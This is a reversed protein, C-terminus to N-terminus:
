KKIETNKWCSINLIISEALSESANWVYQPDEEDLFDEIWWRPEFANWAYFIKQGWFSIVNSTAHRDAILVAWKSKYGNSDTLGNWIYFNIDFNSNFLKIYQIVSEALYEENGRTIIWESEYKSFDRGDYAWHFKEIFEVNLSPFRNKWFRKLDKIKGNVEENDEWMEDCDYYISWNERQCISWHDSCTYSIRGTDDISSIYIYVTDIWREKFRKELNETMWLFRQSFEYSREYDEFRPSSIWTWRYITYDTMCRCTNLIKKLLEMEKDGIKETGQPISICYVKWWYKNKVLNELSLSMDSYKNNDRYILVLDAEQLEALKNKDIWSLLNIQEFYGQWQPWKELLASKLDKQKSATNEWILSYSCNFQSREYENQLWTENKM